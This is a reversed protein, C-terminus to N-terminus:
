RQAVGGQHGDHPPRHVVPCLLLELIDPQGVAEDRLVGSDPVSQLFGVGRVGAADASMREGARGVRHPQHSLSPFVVTLDEFSISQLFSDPFLVLSGIQHFSKSEEVLYSVM